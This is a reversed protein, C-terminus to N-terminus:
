PEREVPEVNPAPESPKDMIATRMVRDIAANLRSLTLANAMIVNHLQCRQPDPDVGELLRDRVVTVLDHTVSAYRYTDLVAEALEAFPVAAALLDQQKRIEDATM